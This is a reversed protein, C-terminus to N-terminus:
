KSQKIFNQDTTALEYYYEDEPLVNCIAGGVMQELMGICINKEEDTMQSRNINRKWYRGYRQKWEEFFEGYSRWMDGSKLFVEVFEFASRMSSIDFRTKAFGGGYATSAGPHAIYFYRASPVAVYTSAGSLVVSSFIFDELMILHKTQCELIEIANMWLERRYLKNWVVHWHYCRGSQKWYMEYLERRREGNLYPFQECRTQVYKVGSLDVNVIQGVAIDAGRREASRYLKDFYRSAICDDSDVFGIYKGQAAKIGTLRAHYLGKNEPLTILKVAENASCYEKVIDESGDTSGDNVCIMEYRIKIGGIISDLCKRIYKESNYFPIIVSVPLEETKMQFLAM